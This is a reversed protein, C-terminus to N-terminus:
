GEGEGFAASWWKNEVNLFDTASKLFFRGVTEFRSRLWEQGSKGGFSSQGLEELTTEVRAEISSKKGDNLLVGIDLKHDPLRVKKGMRAELSQVGFGGTKGELVVLGDDQLPVIQVERNECVTKVKGVLNEVKIRIAAEARMEQQNAEVQFGDVFPGSNGTKVFIDVAPKGGVVSITGEVEPKGAVYIRLDEFHVDAKGRRVQKLVNSIPFDSGEPIGLAQQRDIVQRFLGIMDGCLFNKERKFGPEFRLAHTESDHFIVLIPLWQKRSITDAYPSRRMVLYQSPKIHYEPEDLSEHPTARRMLLVGQVEPTLSVNVDLWIMPKADLYNRVEESLELTAGLQVPKKPRRLLGEDSYRTMKALRAFYSSYAEWEKEVDFVAPGKKPVSRGSSPAEFSDAQKQLLSPLEQGETISVILEVLAKLGGAEKVDPAHYQFPPKFQPVKPAKFAPAAGEADFHTTERNTKSRQEAEEIQREIRGDMSEPDFQPINPRRKM